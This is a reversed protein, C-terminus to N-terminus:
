FTIRKFYDLDLVVDGLTPSKGILRGGEIRKISLTLCQTDNFWTKVPSLPMQPVDLNVPGFELQNIDSMPLSRRPARPEFEVSGGVISKVRAKFSGHPAVRVLDLESDAPLSPPEDFVGNWRNVRINRIRVSGSGQHVLRIGKGEGNFGNPDRWLRILAGDVYLAIVNQSRSCKIEVHAQNKRDFQNLIHQGLFQLPIDKKVLLVNASRPNLQISYFGGFNPEIDKNRLSIPQLFDTYLAVALNFTEKWAMDFELSSSEPLNVIKAISAAKNAYFGGNAYKWTGAGEVKVDGMTWGDLGEPGEFVAAGEGSSLRLLRVMERRATLGEGFPARFHYNTGDYRELNAIMSDGNTFLVQCRNTAMWAEGMEIDLQIESVGSTAFRIPKEVNPNKWELYEPDSMGLLRGFFVDDNEFRISDQGPLDASLICFLLVIM